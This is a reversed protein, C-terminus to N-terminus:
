TIVHEVEHLLVNIKSPHGAAFAMSWAEEHELQRQSKIDDSRVSRLFLDIEQMGNSGVRFQLNDVSTQLRELVDKSESQNSDNSSEKSYRALLHCTIVAWTDSQFLRFPRASVNIGEDSPIQPPTKWWQGELVVDNSDKVNRQIRGSFCVPHGTGTGLIAERTVVFKQLFWAMAPITDRYSAGVIAVPGRQQRGPILIHVGFKSRIQNESQIVSKRREELTEGPFCWHMRRRNSSSATDTSRANESIDVSAEQLYEPIDLQILCNCAKLPPPVLEGTGKKQRDPPPRYIRGGHGRKGADVRASAGHIYM